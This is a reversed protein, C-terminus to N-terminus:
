PVIAVRTRYRALGLLLGEAAVAVGAMELFEEVTSLSNLLLWHTYGGDVLRGTLMELGVAGLVFIAAGLLTRRRAADGLSGLWRYGVAVTVLVALIGPVIWAYYLWGGGTGLLGRLPEITREHLMLFEDAAMFAPVAAAVRGWWPSGGHRAQVTGITWALISLVLLGLSAVLTPLTQESSVNVLAAATQLWDVDPWIRRAFQGGLSIAALVVAVALLVRRVGAASVPLHEGDPHSSRRDPAHQRTGASGKAQSITGDHTVM